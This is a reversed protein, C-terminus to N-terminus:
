HSEKSTWGDCHNTEVELHIKSMEEVKDFFILRKNCLKCNSKPFSGIRIVGGMQM